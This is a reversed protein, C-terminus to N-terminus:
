VFKALTKAIKEIEKKSLTPYIPLSYLKRSLRDSNPFDLPRLNLYLHLPRPVPRFLEIGTKKWYKEVRESPADFVIPFSQYVFSENFAYMSKHPTTKLADHYVRAIDRRRRIFDQLRSLQSYGMAAQFDTMAYDFGPSAGEGGSGRADRMASFFRSNSTMVMGGNGTTIIMSPSFSCVTIAGEHGAPRDNIESGIVHSIDEILPVNLEKFGDLPSYFGMLHGAIIARTRETIKERISDVSPAFSGEAIDVLVPTGGALQIAGLASPDYFSPVIVEDGPRIDLALFALHYSATLSSTALSYKCSVLNGIQAEFNKVSEGADLKDRILCDLVSELEKRTITPKCSFISM